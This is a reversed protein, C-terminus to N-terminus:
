RALGLSRILQVHSKVPQLWGGLPDSFVALFIRRIPIALLFFELPFHWNLVLRICFRWLWYVFDLIGLRACNMSLARVLFCGSFGNWILLGYRSLSGLCYRFFSVWCSLFIAHACGCLNLKSVDM